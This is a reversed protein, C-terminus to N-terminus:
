YINTKLFLIYLFVQNFYQYYPPKIHSKNFDNMNHLAANLTNNHGESASPRFTLDAAISDRTEISLTMVVDGPHKLEDKM